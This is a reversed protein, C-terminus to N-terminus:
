INQNFYWAGDFMQSMNTVNSTNWANYTTGDDRTVLHTNIPQNFRNAGQFMLNMNTVNSTDWESIDENIRVKEVSYSSM